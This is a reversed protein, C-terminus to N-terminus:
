QGETLLKRLAAFKEDNSAMSKLPLRRFRSMFDLAASREEATHQGDANEEEIRRKKKYDFNELEQAKRKAEAIVVTPLKAMEAM